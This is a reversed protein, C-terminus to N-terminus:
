GKALAIFVLIMFFIVAIVSFGWAVGLRNTRLEVAAGLGDVEATNDNLAIKGLFDYSVQAVLLCLLAAALTMLILILSYPRLQSVHESMKDYMLAEAALLLGDFALLAGAKSDLITLVDYLWKITDADAPPPPVAGGPPAARAASTRIMNQFREVVAAPM